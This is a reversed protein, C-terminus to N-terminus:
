FLIAHIEALGVAVLLGASAKKLLGLNRAKMGRGYHTAATAEDMDDVLNIMDSLASGGALIGYACSAIVLTILPASYGEPGFHIIAALAVLAAVTTQMITYYARTREMQLYNRQDPTM